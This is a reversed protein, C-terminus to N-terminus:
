KNNEEKQIKQRLVEVRADVEKKGKDDLNNYLKDYEKRLADAFGQCNNNIINYEEGREDFQSSNKVNKEAQKMLVDDYVVDEMKYDSINEKYMYGEDGYGINENSNDYFGHEHVAEINMTDLTKINVDPPAFMLMIATLAIQLTKSNSLPRKGFRFNGDPDIYVIPNNGVYNYIDMNIPEYIGGAPLKEEKISSKSRDPLYKEFAPDTSIWRSIRADYYRAGFYYLGTEKDLEKGTFKYPTTYGGVGTASSTSADMWVEGYPLYEIREHYSGTSTTLVSSSGLHDTAYYYMAPKTEERHKVVSAIRTNGVFVHNSEVYEQSLVYGTDVYISKGYPGDKVIRMGKADYAYQTVTRVGAQTDVTKTLRNEDDWYLIRSILM